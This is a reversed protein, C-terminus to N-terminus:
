NYTFILTISIFKLKIKKITNNNHLIIWLNWRGFLLVCLDRSLKYIDNKVIVVKFKQQEEIVILKIMPFGYRQGVIASQLIYSKYETKINTKKDIAM